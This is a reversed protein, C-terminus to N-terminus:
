AASNVVEGNWSVQIPCGHAQRQIRYRGNDGMRVGELLILTSGNDVVEDVWVAASAIVWAKPNFSVRKGGSRITVGDVGFLAILLEAGYTRDDQLTNEAELEGITLFDQLDKIPAGDHRCILVGCEADYKLSLESAGARVASRILARFLLDVDLKTASELIGRVKTSAVQLRIDNMHNEEQIRPM